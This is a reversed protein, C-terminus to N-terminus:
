GSSEEDKRAWNVADPIDSETIGLTEHHEWRRIPLNHKARLRGFVGPEAIGSALGAEIASKLAAIADSEM